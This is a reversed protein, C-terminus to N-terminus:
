AVVGALKQDATQFSAVNAAAPGNALTLFLDGNYRDGEYPHGHDSEGHGAVVVAPQRDPISTANM